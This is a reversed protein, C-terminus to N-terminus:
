GALTLTGHELAKGGQEGLVDNPGIDGKEDSEKPKGNKAPPVGQCAASKPSAMTTGEVPFTISVLRFSSTFYLAIWFM